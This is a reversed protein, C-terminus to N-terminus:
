SRMWSMEHSFPCCLFVGDYVDCAVALDMQRVLCLDRLLDYLSLIAAAQDSQFTLHALKIIIKKM